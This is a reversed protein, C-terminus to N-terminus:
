RVAETALAADLAPLASNLQHAVALDRLRALDALLAPDAGDRGLRALARGRAILFDSFPLPQSATYAELSKCLRDVAQWDRSELSADIALERFHIHNHSVCGRLLEAEAEAIASSRISPDTEVLAVVGLIWPGIHGMGHERCIALAHEAHSRALARQNNRLAAVASCGYLQAEFRKATLSRAVALAKELQAALADANCRVLGDVWVVMVRAILEARPQSARMALDIAQLGVEVAGQMQNLHLGTWGVMPLNAVELRGFGRERSLAVCKLFQENASAMHGRLYQADGLGGLAAAQAELSGAEV